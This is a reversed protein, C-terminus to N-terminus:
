RMRGNSPARVQAAKGWLPDAADTDRMERADQELEGAYRACFADLRALMAGLTTPVAWPTAGYMLEAVTMRHALERAEHKCMIGHPGPQSQECIPCTMGGMVIRNDQLCSARPCQRVRLAQGMFDDVRDGRTGCAGCEWGYENARKDGSVGVRRVNKADVM